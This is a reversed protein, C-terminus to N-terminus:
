RSGNDLELGTTFIRKRPGLLVGCRLEPNRDLEGYATRAETRVNGPDFANRKRGPPHTGMFLCTPRSSEVTIRTYAM